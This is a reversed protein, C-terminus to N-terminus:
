ALILENNLVSIFASAGGLISAKFIDKDSLNKEGSLIATAAAVGLPGGFLGAGTTAIMDTITCLAREIFAGFHKGGIHKAIRGIGRSARRFPRCIERCIKKFLGM